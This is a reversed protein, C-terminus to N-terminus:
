SHEKPIALHGAVGGVQEDQVQANGVETEDQATHGELAGDVGQVGPDEAGEHALEDMEEDVQGDVGAAEGQGCDGNVPPDLVVQAPAPAPCEEILAPIPVRLTLPSKLGSLILY